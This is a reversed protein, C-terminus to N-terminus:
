EQVEYELSTGYLGSYTNCFRWAQGYALGYKVYQKQADNDMYFINYLTYM